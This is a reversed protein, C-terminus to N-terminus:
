CALPSPLQRTQTNTQRMCSTSNVVLFMAASTLHSQNPWLVSSKGRSLRCLWIITKCCPKGGASATIIPPNNLHAHTLVVAAPQSPCGPEEEDYPDRPSHVRVMWVGNTPYQNQIWSISTTTSPPFLQRNALPKLQVMNVNTGNKIQEAECLEARSHVVASCPNLSCFRKLCAICTTKNAYGRMMIVRCTKECGGIYSNSPWVGWGSAEMLRPSDGM